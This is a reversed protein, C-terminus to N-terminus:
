GALLLLEWGGLTGVPTTGGGAFPLVEGGLGGTTGAEPVPTGLVVPVGLGNVLPAEVTLPPM